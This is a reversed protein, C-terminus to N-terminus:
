VWGDWTGFKTRRKEAAGAMVERRSWAAFRACDVEAPLDTIGLVAESVM